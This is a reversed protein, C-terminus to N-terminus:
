RHDRRGKGPRNRTARRWTSERQSTTKSTCWTAGTFPRMIPLAPFEGELWDMLDAFMPRERRAPVPM